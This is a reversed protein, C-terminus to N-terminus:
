NLDPVTQTWKSHGPALGPAMHVTGLEHGLKDPVHTCSYMYQTHRPSALPATLPLNRFIEAGAAGRAFKERFKAFSQGVGISAVVSNLRNGRTRSIELM